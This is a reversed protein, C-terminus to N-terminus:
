PANSAQHNFNRRFYHVIIVQVFFKFQLKLEPLIFTKIAILLCFDAVVLCLANDNKLGFKTRSFQMHLAETNRLAAEIATSSRIRMISM